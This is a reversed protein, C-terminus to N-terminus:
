LAIFTNSRPKVIPLPLSGDFSSILPAYVLFIDIIISGFLHAFVAKPNAARLRALFYIFICAFCYVVVTARTDLMFGDYILRQAAEAPSVGTQNAQAIATQQLLQLRETTEQSSRVATAAKMSIVGWAYALFVGLLIPVVGLVHIFVIGNPPIILQVLCAFFTATGLNHLSPDIFMLLSGVGAGVFCRFFIKLDNRHFHNLLGPLRSVRTAETDGPRMITHDDLQSSTM